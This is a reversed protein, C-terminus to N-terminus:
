LTRALNVLAKEYLGDLYDRVCDSMVVSVSSTSSQVSAEEELDEGEEDQSCISQSQSKISAEISEKSEQSGEFLSWSQLSAESEREDTSLPPMFDFFPKKPFSEAFHKERFAVESGM